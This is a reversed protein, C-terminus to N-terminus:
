LKMSSVSFTFNLDEPVKLDKIQKQINQNSYQLNQVIKAIQVVPNETWALRAIEQTGLRIGHENFLKKNKKNLTVNNRFANSFMTNMTDQSTRIFIQHTFTPTNNFFPIDFDYEKLVRGLDRSYEITKRAYDVGFKEMEFLTYLLSVVQHMQTNRLYKPSINEDLEKAIEENNTMILGNAPGPLTKHTGGFLVCNIPTELPNAVQKGAILGLTQSADYLFLTQSPLNLKNYDPAKIIDSPAYLLYKIDEEVLTEYIKEYDLDFEEYNYPMDIIELGLRKCVHEMSPHGGSSSTSLMIKDGINTISMLLSTVCNMGSLTRADAYKASFLKLCQSNILKYVEYLHESGIFNEEISFSNIGNMIYREQYDKLLPIKSFDSMRNEAACLPLTLRKKALYDEENKKFNLYGLVTELM